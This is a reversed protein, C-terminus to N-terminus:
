KVVLVHLKEDEGVIARRAAKVYERIVRQYSIRKAVLPTSIQERLKKEFQDIAKGIGSKNLFVGDQLESAEEDSTVEPPDDANRSERCEFDDPEFVGLNFARCVTADVIPTRFQELLDYMLSEKGYATTHLYGICADMNETAIAAQVRYGLLTYLFSLAANVNDKPPNTSRGHFEAWDAVINKRFGAFYRKAAWGEFGRIQDVDKAREVNKLAIRMDKEIDDIDARNVHTKRGIRQVFNLQNRIKGQAVERAWMLRFTDDHRREYQSLRVAVNRSDGFQITGNLRGNKNLFVTQIQHRMLMKLAASSLDANGQVVIQSTQHPFIITKTGDRALYELKGAEKHLRGGNSALYVTRM